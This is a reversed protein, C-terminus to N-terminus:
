GGLSIVTVSALQHNYSLVAKSQFLHELHWSTTIVVKGRCASPSQTFAGPKQLVQVGEEQGRKREGKREKEGREEREAGARREGDGSKGGAERGGLARNLCVRLVVGSGGGWTKTQLPEFRAETELEVLMLEM